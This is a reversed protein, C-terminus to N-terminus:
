RRVARVGSRCKSAAGPFVASILTTRSAPPAPSAPFVENINRNEVSRTHFGTIQSAARNFSKIQQQLNMTAIGADGSDIISRHLLDLQDFATEKEALLTRARREREVVFSSLFAIVYFSLIYTVIRTFVYGPRQDYFQLHIYEEIPIVRYYELDVLLGYCVSCASAIIMGGGRGLFFVGYIVVLPYFVAYVSVVGGTAHVLGTVLLVDGLGQLYINLRPEPFFFRFVAYLVSLAYSTFIVAGFGPISIEPLLDEERYSLYIFIALLLTTILLRSLLLIRLRRQTSEDNLDLPETM